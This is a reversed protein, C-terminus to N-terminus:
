QNNLISNGTPKVYVAKIISLFSGELRVKNLIKKIMFSHNIKDFKKADISIIM